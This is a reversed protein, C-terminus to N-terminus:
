GELEFGITLFWIFLWILLSFLSLIVGAIGLKKNGSILKIPMIGLIVGLISIPILIRFYLSLQWNYYGFLILKLKGPGLWFLLGWITGLIGIILSFSSFFKFNKSFDM